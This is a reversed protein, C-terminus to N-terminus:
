LHVLGTLVALPISINGVCWSWPSCGAVARPARPNWRPHSLGLTQLMSWFGHYLHLGLALM